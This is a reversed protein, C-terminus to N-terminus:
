NEKSEAMGMNDLGDQIKQSETYVELARSCYPCYYFSDVWNKDCEVCYNNYDEDM